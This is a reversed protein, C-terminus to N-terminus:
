TAGEAALLARFQAEAERWRAEDAPAGAFAVREQIAVLAALPPHRADRRGVSALIERATRTRMLGEPRWGVERLAALLLAAIADEYRGRAALDRPDGDVVTLGPPAAPADGDRARAPAEALAGGRPRLSALVFVFVAVLIAVGIWLLVSGGGAAIPVGPSSPERPPTRETRPSAHGEGDEGDEGQDLAPDGAGGGGGAGAAGGPFTFTASGFADSSAVPLRDSYDGRRRVQDAVGAPDAQASAVGVGALLAFAAVAILAAPAAKAPMPLPLPAPM